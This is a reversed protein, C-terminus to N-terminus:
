TRKWGCQNLVVSLAGAICEITREELGKEGHTLGRPRGQTTKLPICAHMCEHLWVERLKAPQHKLTSDLHIERKGHFTEGWAYHSAWEPDEHDRWVVCWLEGRIYLTEPIM